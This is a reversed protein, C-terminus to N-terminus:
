AEFTYQWVKNSLKCFKRAFLNKEILFKPYNQSILLNIPAFIKVNLIYTKSRILIIINTKHCMVQAVHITVQSVHCTVRWVIWRKPTFTNQLCKWLHHIVWNILTQQVDGARRPRNLVNCTMWETLWGIGGM